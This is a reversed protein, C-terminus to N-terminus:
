KGGNILSVIESEFESHWSVAQEFFATITEPEFRPSSNLQSTNIDMDLRVLSISETAPPLEDRQQVRTANVRKIIGITNTDETLSGFERNVFSSARWDWENLNKDKYTPPLTLLRQGIENVEPERKEILGERIIALRHPVKHFINSVTKLVKGAQECFEAFNGLDQGIPSPSVRLFQFASSLLVLQTVQDETTFAPRVLLGAPTVEQVQAPLLQLSELEELTKIIEKQSTKASEADVFAVAVYRLHADYM